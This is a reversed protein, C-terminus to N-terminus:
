QLMPPSSLIAEVDNVTTISRLWNVYQQLEERPFLAPNERAPEFLTELVHTTESIATVPVVMSSSKVTHLAREIAKLQEVTAQTKNTATLLTELSNVRNELEHVFTQWLKPNAESPPINTTAAEPSSAKQTSQASLQPVITPESPTAKPAPQTTVSAAPSVKANQQSRLILDDAIQVVKCLDPKSIQADAGVAEGKKFNDPTVISSYLLVPIHKLEPTQKIRKTFHLGDMQPMEVDSIILDCVPNGPNKQLEASIHDWALKGNEFFRLNTYGSSRMTDNIAARVTPSDDALIIRLSERPLNKENEVKKARLLHDTVQDIIMEFDLMLIMREQIRAISTLPTNPMKEACPVQQIQKWSLRHIREVQDVLFATQQQNFDTLIMRTESDDCSHELKLHDVLSVIPIVHDRLKFVGRVSAHSKPLQTITQRPLVERVKAVNIGFTCGGATFVLVELENTGSELLIEKELLIQGVSANSGSM